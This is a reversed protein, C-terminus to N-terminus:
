FTLLCLYENTNTMFCPVLIIDLLSFDFYEFAIRYKMPNILQIESLCDHRKSSKM